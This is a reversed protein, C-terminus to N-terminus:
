SVGQTYNDRLLNLYLFHRDDMVQLMGKTYQDFHMKYFNGFFLLNVKKDKLEEITFTGAPIRPQTALVAFIITLLSVTLLLIVATALLIKDNNLKPILVTLLITVILVNVSIMIHSKTDAQDSLRQNKDASIRFMTEITREPGDEKKKEPKANPMPIIAPRSQLLATVPDVPLAPAVEKKKLKELNDKKRKALHKKCYDTFYNHGEMFQITSTRWENKDVAIGQLLSLEKRMLKNQEGFDTAALHFFSADCVIQQPMTVPKQPMKTALLCNKVDRIIEDQAGSKRLFNEAIQASAEEHKNYNEYYGTDVFWAAVLTILLENHSLEYDTGIQRAIEVVTETHSLTHYIIKKNQHEEMFNIIYDKAQNVIPLHNM